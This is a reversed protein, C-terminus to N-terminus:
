ATAGLQSPDLQMTLYEDSTDTWDEFQIVGMEEFRRRLWMDNRDLLGLKKCNPVIKSFLVQQFVVRGPDQVVLQLAQEHTWTGGAAEVVDREAAMWHPETDVITGDMDWLVAAPLAREACPLLHM